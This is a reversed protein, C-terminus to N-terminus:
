RIIHLQMGLLTLAVGGALLGIVWSFPNGRLVRALVAGLLTLIVLAVIVAFWRNEPLLVGSVLPTLAGCFSSGSAVLAGLSAERLIDRGLRSAALKGRSTVNLQREAEALEGRLQAYHAVFFVFAGPVATAAGVRFALGMTMTSGPIVLRGATLTLATLIGDCLGAVLDLRYKPKLFFAFAKM